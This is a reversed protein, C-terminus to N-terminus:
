RKVLEAPVGQTLKKRPILFCSAIIEDIETLLDDMERDERQHRPTWNESHEVDDQMKIRKIFKPTDEPSHVSSPTHRRNKSPKPTSIVNPSYVVKYRGRLDREEYEM